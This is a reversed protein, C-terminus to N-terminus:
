ERSLSASKGTVKALKDCLPRHEWPRPSPAADRAETQVWLGTSPLLSSPSVGQGGECLGMEARGRPARESDLDTLVGLFCLLFFHYGAELEKWCLVRFLTQKTAALPHVKSRQLSLSSSYSRGLHRYRDGSERGVLKEINGSSEATQEVSVYQHSAQALCQALDGQLASVSDKPSM